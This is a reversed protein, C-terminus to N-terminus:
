RCEDRMMESIQVLFMEIIYKNESYATVHCCRIVQNRKLPIELVIDDVLLLIYFYQIKLNTYQM